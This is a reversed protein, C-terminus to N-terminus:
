PTSIKTIKMTSKTTVFIKGGRFILEWPSITSHSDMIIPTAVFMMAARGVSELCCYGSDDLQYIKLVVTSDQLYAGRVCLGGGGGGGGGRLKLEPEQM